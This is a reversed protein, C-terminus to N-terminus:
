EMWVRLWDAFEDLDPELFEQLGGEVSGDEYIKLKEFSSIGDIKRVAYITLDSNKLERRAVANLFGFLIHESHTELFLQYNRKESMELLFKSLEYQLRPHLHMEPHEIFISSSKPYFALPVILPFLAIFGSGMDNIDVDVGIENTAVIKYTVGDPLPVWRIDSQGYKSFFNKILQINEKFESRYCTYFFLQHANHTDVNKVEYLAGRLIRDIKRETRLIFLINLPYRVLEQTSLDKGIIRAVGVNEDFTLETELLPLNDFKFKIKIKRNLEKKFVIQDFQFPVEGHAKFSTKVSINDVRIRRSPKINTFSRIRNSFKRLVEFCELVSTKGSGNPGILVNIKSFDLECTEISKYNEISIKSIM